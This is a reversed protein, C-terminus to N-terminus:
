HSIMIRGTSLLQTNDTVSYYYLGGLMNATSINYSGNSINERRYILRGTMDYISIEVQSIMDMIELTTYDDSPNPYFNVHPHSPPGVHISDCSTCTDGSTTIVTLCVFYMGTGSYFHWPNQNASTTSDGFNWYYSVIGTGSPYFHVSDVNSTTYHSFHADCLVNTSGVHVSDCHTCTDGSTTIVTLCVYYNGPSSYLHWPYQATSSASDGFTWYYSVIGTGNPYFHVSDPNTTLSYHSFHANCLVNNSVIHVSDCWTCSDVSSMYVTLCVYYTGPSSYLHWPNQLTSSTNDGFTWHYYVGAPGTPYFHVSDPNNTLSYHSFHANCLVNTSGVHVSDCHTCSDGSTTIVTLCVYYNGPSSYLHWPYQATSSTSDGFTWYYSVIGTGNPYFHVSDPNTTLSYHSFHADCLVTNSGVHVSDCHTCTDGSTTIVTLCVYYNGPSSYLHWPYQATSSASDGFTWYYSVIGTGNPYFHVSDPNTTLSYHSFHANCPITNSAIHVSDCWTCSDVSSMYVTLCVYYTGPSSYLHWPNQLTSSTNDGFTWHYYVGAPGTPYFHVSDPNNTLSYHSFHADCVAQSQLSIASSLFVFLLFPLLKKIM